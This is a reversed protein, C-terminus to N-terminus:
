IAFREVGGLHWSRHDNCIARFMHGWNTNTPVARLLRFSPQPWDRRDISPILELAEHANEAFHLIRKEVIGLGELPASQALQAVRAHRYAEGLAHEFSLAGFPVCESGPFVGKGKFGLVIGVSIEIRGLVGTTMSFDKRFYRVDDFSGLIEQCLHGQSGSDVVVEDMCRQYEIWQTWTWREVSELIARRLAGWYNFGFAFGCGTPYNVLDFEEASPSEVLTAIIKREISESVAAKIAHERNGKLAGGLVGGSSSLCVAEAGVSIGSKCMFSGVEIRDLEPVLTKARGLLQM